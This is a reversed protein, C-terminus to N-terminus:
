KLVVMKGVSQYKGGRELGEMTVRCFYMGSSLASANYGIKPWGANQVGQYTM